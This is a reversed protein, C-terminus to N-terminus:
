RSIIGHITDGLSIAGTRDAILNQGFLVNNGVKRFRSLTALPEVGKVGTEQDVTTVACRACPKAVRFPVDGITVRQWTDEEFPACGRIVINPRFRSMPVPEELRENLDELSAESILLFPYADAFSTHDEPHGYAPDVPRVSTDPMFVLSCDAELFASLWNNVADPYPAASVQDGWIDVTRMAQAGNASAVSLPDKGPAHITVGDGAIEVRLLALRPYQRQTIAVGAHDVLMWRRDLRFGREEVALTPFSIGHAAKVPYVNLQSVSIASSM